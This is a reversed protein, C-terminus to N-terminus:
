EGRAEIRKDVYRRAGNPGAYMGVCVDDKVVDYVNPLRRYILYGRYESPPEDTVYFEPGYLGRADPKHFSNRYTTITM